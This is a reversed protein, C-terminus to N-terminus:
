LGVREKYESLEGRVVILLVNKADKIDNNSLYILKSLSVFYKAREREVLECDFFPLPLPHRIFYYPKSYARRAVKYFTDQEEDIYAEFIEGQELAQIINEYEKVLEHKTEECNEAYCMGQEYCFVEGGNLGSGIDYSCVGTGKGDIFCNFEASDEDRGTCIFVDRGNEGFYNNGIEFKREIGIMDKGGQNLIKMLLIITQKYFFKEQIAKKILNRYLRKQINKQIAKKLKKIANTITKEQIAKKIHKNKGTYGKKGIKIFTYFNIGQCHPM